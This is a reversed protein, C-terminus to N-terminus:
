SLGSFCMPHNLGVVKISTYVRRLSSQDGNLVENSFVNYQINLKIYQMTNSIPHMSTKCWSQAIHTPKNLFHIM